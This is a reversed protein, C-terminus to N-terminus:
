SNGDAKSKEVVEFGLARLVDNTEAGGSFESVEWQDIDNKMAIALGLAAKPAFCEGEHILVYKKSSSWRTKRGTYLSALAVLIDSHTLDKPVAM